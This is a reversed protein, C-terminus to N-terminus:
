NSRIQKIQKLISKYSAQKLSKALNVNIALGKCTNIGNQKINYSSTLLSSRINSIEETSKCVLYLPFKESVWFTLKFNKESYFKIATEKLIKCFFGFSNM